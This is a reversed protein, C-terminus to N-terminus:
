RLLEQICPVLLLLLPSLVPLLPVRLLLVRLPLSQAEAL